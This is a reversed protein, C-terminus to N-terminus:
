KAVDASFSFEKMYVHDADVWDGRDESDERLVRVRRTCPDVANIIALFPARGPVRVVVLEGVEWLLM